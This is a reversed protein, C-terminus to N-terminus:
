KRRGTEARVIFRLSRAEDVCERLPKVLERHAEDREWNLFDDLSEWESTIVWSDPDDPSQCVQDLIHGKVGDAVEHRILEYAAM